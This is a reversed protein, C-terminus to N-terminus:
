SCQLQQNRAPDLPTKPLRVSPPESVLLYVGFLTVNVRAGSTIRSMTTPTCDMVETKTLPEVELKSGDGISVNMSEVM